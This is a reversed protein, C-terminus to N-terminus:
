PTSRGTSGAQRALWAAARRGLEALGAGFFHDAEDVTELEVGSVGALAAELAAPPALRDAEGALVLVRRRGFAGFAGEELLAPPPAVLLLRKVRPSRTAVRLAAAAGFSYGAALLPGPATEEMHALAAAFDADADASSGSPEGASAGVGRWNFRLSAIGCRACAFALEGVVPSEMSGGYLPHPAAVVAGADADPAGRVFIGELSEHPADPRPVAVMREEWKM